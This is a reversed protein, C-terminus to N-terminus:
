LGYRGKDANYNELVEADSLIKSYLQVPGGEADSFYRALHGGFFIVNQASTYNGTDGVSIGSVTLVGDKWGYYAGTAGNYGACWYHWGDGRMNSAEITIAEIENGTTTRGNITVGGTAAPNNINFFPTTSTIYNSVMTTGTASDGVNIKLWGCWTWITTLTQSWGSNIYKGSGDLIYNGASTTLGGNLTVNRGNGSQDATSSVLPDIWQELSDTVVQAGIPAAGYALQGGIYARGMLGGGISPQSLLPTTGKYLKTAM